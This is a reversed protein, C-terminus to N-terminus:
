SKFFIFLGDLTSKHKQTSVNQASTRPLDSITQVISVHLPPPTSFKNTSNCTNTNDYVYYLVNKQNAPSIKEIIQFIKKTHPFHRVNM